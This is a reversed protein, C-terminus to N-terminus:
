GRPLRDQLHDWGVIHASNSMWHLNSCIFGKGSPFHFLRWISYKAGGCESAMEAPKLETSATPKCLCYSRWGKSRAWVHFRVNSLGRSKQLLYIKIDVKLLRRARIISIFPENSTLLSLREFRYILGHPSLQVNWITWSYALSSKRYVISMSMSYVGHLCGELSHCEKGPSIPQHKKRPAM